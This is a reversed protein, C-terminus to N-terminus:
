GIFRLTLHIQDTDVWRANPMGLKLMSLEQKIAEPLDIAVFLRIM